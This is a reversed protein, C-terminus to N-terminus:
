LPNDMNQTINVSWAYCEVLKKTGNQRKGNTGNIM